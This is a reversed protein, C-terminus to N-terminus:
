PNHGCNVCPGESTFRDKKCHWCPSYWTKKDM